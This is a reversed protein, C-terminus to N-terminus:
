RLHTREARAVYLKGWAVCEDCGNDLTRDQGGAYRTHWSYTSTFNSAEPPYTMGDTTIIPTCVIGEQRM